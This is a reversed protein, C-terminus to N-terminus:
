TFYNRAISALTAKYSMYLSVLTAKYRMYLSVLTAKYRMYLFINKFTGAFTCELLSQNGSFM